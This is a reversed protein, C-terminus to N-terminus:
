NVCEFFFEALAGNTETNFVFIQSVQLRNAVRNVEHVGVNQRVALLASQEHRAKGCRPFQEAPELRFRGTSFAAFFTAFERTSIDFCPSALVSVM